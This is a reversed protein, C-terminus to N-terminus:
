AKKKFKIILSLEANTLDTIEQIEEETFGIEILKKIMKIKEEKQQIESFIKKAEQILIQKPNDIETTETTRLEKLNDEKKESVIQTNSQSLDLKKQYEELSIMSSTNLESTKIDQNQQNFYFDKLKLTSVPIEPLNFIKRFMMGMKTLFNSKSENTSHLIFDKDKNQNKNSIFSFDIRDQNTEEALEEWIKEQNNQKIENQVKNIKNENNSEIVENKKLTKTKNRKKNRIAEWNEIEKKIDMIKLYIKNINEQKEKIMELSTNIYQFTDKLNEFLEKPVYIKTKQKKINRIRIETYLIYFIIFILLIVVEM